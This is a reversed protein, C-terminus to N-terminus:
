DRKTRCLLWMFVYVSEQSTVWFSFKKNNTKANYEDFEWNKPFGEFFCYNRDGIADEIVGVVPVDSDISINWNYYNDRLMVRVFGLDIYYAPIITSKSRHEGAVGFIPLGKHGLEDRWLTKPITQMLYDRVWMIQHEAAKEYILNKANRKNPKGLLESRFWEQLDPNLLAIATGAM